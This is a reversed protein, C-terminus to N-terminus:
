AAEPPKPLGWKQKYAEMWPDKDAPELARWENLDLFCQRCTVYMGFQDMQERHRPCGDKLSPFCELSLGIYWNLGDQMRKGVLEDWSVAMAENSM